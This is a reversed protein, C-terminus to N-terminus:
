TYGQFCKLYEQIIWEHSQDRKKKVKENVTIKEMM